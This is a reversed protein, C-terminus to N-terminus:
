RSRQNRQSGCGKEVECGRKMGREPVKKAQCARQPARGECPPEEGTTIVEEVVTTVAEARREEPCWRRRRQGREPSRAGFTAMAKADAGFHHRAVKMAEGHFQRLRPLARRHQEVALEYEAKTRRVETFLDLGKQFREIVEERVLSREPFAFPPMGPELREYGQKARELKLELETKTNAAIM